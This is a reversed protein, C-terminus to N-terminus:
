IVILLSCLVFAPLNCSVQFDTEVEQGKNKIRQERKGTRKEKGGTEQLKYTKM